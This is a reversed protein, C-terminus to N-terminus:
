RHHHHHHVTKHVLSRIKHSPSSTNHHSPVSINHHSPVSINHHSPSSSHYDSIFSNNHHSHDYSHDDNYSSNYGLGSSGLLRTRNRHHRHCSKQLEYHNYNNHFKVGDDKCEIKLKDLRESYENLKKFLDMIMIFFFMRDTNNYDSIKTNDKLSEVLLKFAYLLISNKLLPIEKKNISYKIDNFNEDKKCFDNKDLKNVANIIKNIDDTLSEKKSTYGEIVINNNRIKTFYINGVLIILIILIIFYGIYKYQEDSLM